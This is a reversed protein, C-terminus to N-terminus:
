SYLMVLHELVSSPDNWYEAYFGNAIAFDITKDANLDWAYGNTMADVLNDGTLDFYLYGPSATASLSPALESAQFTGDSLTIREISELYQLGYSSSLAYGNGYDVLAVDATELSAIVYTDTGAGGYIQDLGSSAFFSDNGDYGLLVDDYASGYIEDNGSMASTFVQYDDSTSTTTAANWISAASVTMNEIAFVPTYQSGTRVTEIYGTVTGGSVNGYQDFTIGTGGFVSEYYIGRYLWDVWVLDQYTRNNFATNVNDYFGSDYSYAYLSNLNLASM